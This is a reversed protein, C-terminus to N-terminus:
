RAGNVSDDFPEHPMAGSARHAKYSAISEEPTRGTEEAMGRPSAGVGAAWDYTSDEKHGYVNGQYKDAYNEATAEAYERAPFQVGNLNQNQVHHGTEHAVSRQLEARAQLGKAALHEPNIQMSSNYPVYSASHAANRRLWVKSMGKIDNVPVDSMAYAQVVKQRQMPTAPTERDHQVFTEPLASNVDQVRQRWKPPVTM